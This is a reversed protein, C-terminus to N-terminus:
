HINSKLQKAMEIVDFHDNEPEAKLWDEEDALM